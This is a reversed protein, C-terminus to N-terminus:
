VYIPKLIKLRVIRNQNLEVQNLSGSPIYVVIFSWLLVSLFDFRLKKYESFESINSVAVLGSTEIFM